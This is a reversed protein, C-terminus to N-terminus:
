GLPPRAGGRADLPGSSANLCARELATTLITHALGETRDLLEPVRDFPVRVGHLRTVSSVTASRLRRPWLALEGVVDGPGVRAVKKRGRYVDATGEGIVYLDHAPTGELVLPWQAPCRFEAGVHSLAHLDDQSLQSRLPELVGRPATQRRRM